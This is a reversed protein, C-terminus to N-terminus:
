KAWKVVANLDRNLNSADLPTKITHCFPVGSRVFFPDSLSHNVKVRQMRDTLFSGILHILHFPLDFSSLCEIIKNHDVSDFAKAFDDYLVDVQSETTLAKAIINNFLSLSTETSRGPTFGHQKISLKPTIYKRLRNALFSDFIM